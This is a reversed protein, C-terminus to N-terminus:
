PHSQRVYSRFTHSIRNRADPARHESDVLKWERWDVHPFRVDGHIVEHVVTLFMADVHDLAQAYVNGGGVVFASEADHVLTFAEELSSVTEVGDVEYSTDRTLIVMRRGPLPRGISEFTKRGMILPHGMSISKFRQLDAPLRWPLENNHGIVRNEAM